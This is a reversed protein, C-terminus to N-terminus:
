EKRSDLEAVMAVVGDEEAVTKRDVTPFLQKQPEKRRNSLTTEPTGQKVSLAVYMMFYLVLKSRM